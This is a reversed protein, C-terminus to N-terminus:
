WYQHGTARRIIARAAIANPKRRSKILELEQPAIMAAQQNIRAFSDEAKAADGRVWQLQLSLTGLRRARTVVDPGYSAPDSMAAKHSKYSGFEKEVLARTREAVKKQEEPITHNFFRQSREGDGYDDHVWAILAGLRHSGDIVFLLERNQWLIVGPILEGNVFSRIFCVVPEPGWEATERQFDPKRLGGFFFQGAELESIQTSQKVPADSGGLQVDFDERPILADLNVHTAMPAHNAGASRPTLRRRM